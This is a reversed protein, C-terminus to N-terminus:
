PLSDHHLEQSHFLRSKLLESLETLNRFPISQCAATFLTGPHKSLHRETLESLDNHVVFDARSREFLGMVKQQIAFESEGATLKFAVLMVRKNASMDKILDVLKPNRNFQVSFHERESSIKGGQRNASFDSLAAAHIVVDYPYTRLEHFLLKEFDQFTEFELIRCDNPKESSIAGLYTVLYGERALSQALAAGTRGTSVNSIYRVDDIYERTGGSTVLIRKSDLSDNEMIQPTRPSVLSSLAVSHDSSLTKLIRDTIEQPELLRGEGMEGCALDGEGTPAVDVGMERLKQLNSHTIPHKLMEVNMAPFILFPKKQNNALFLSGLLDDALGASLRNITHATAPCVVIAGAERSLQIHDMARGREYLDTLVPKGSLGELTSPGVFELAASTAVVQVEVDVKVLNSIVQCAKYASISGTMVFIVKSKSM